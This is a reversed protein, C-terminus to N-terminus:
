WATESCPHAVESSTLKRAAAARAGRMCTQGHRRRRQVGGGVALARRRAGRRVGDEHRGDVKKPVRQRAPAEEGAAVAAGAATSSTM